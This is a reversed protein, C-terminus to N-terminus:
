LKLERQFLRRMGTGGRKGPTTMTEKKHPVPIFLFSTFVLNNVSLIGTCDSHSETSLILKPYHQRASHDASQQSLYSRRVRWNLLQKNVQLSTQLSSGLSLGPRLAAAYRQCLRALAQISGTQPVAISRLYAICRLLVFTLKCMAHIYIWRFAVAPLIIKQAMGRHLEERFQTMNISFMHSGKNGSSIPIVQTQSIYVRASDLCTSWDLDLIVPVFHLLPLFLIVENFIYILRM